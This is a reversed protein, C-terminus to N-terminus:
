RITSLAASSVAALGAGGFLQCVVVVVLARRYLRYQEAPTIRALEAPSLEDATTM